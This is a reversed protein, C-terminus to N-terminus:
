SKDESERPPSESGPAGGLASRKARYADRSVAKMAPAAPGKGATKVRTVEQAMEEITLKTLLASLPIDIGALKRLRTITQTLLLSHGGLEFFNDQVGVQEVGLMTRWLGAVREEEDDRPAIFTTSVQPRAAPPADADSAAEAAVPQNARASAVIWEELDLATAVVQPGLGAAVVRELAELGEAPLMGERFAAERLATALGEAGAEHPADAVGVAAGALAGRDQVRKMVFGTIEVLVQGGEDVLVVDFTPLDKASGERLRVHSSLRRPLARHLRLRGYSFPVLFDREADFGAILTQVAGTAMDLLAPHLLHTSLDGAFAAPLELDVLAEGAGAGVNIAKINGWRPGFSMFRQPLFGGPGVPRPSGCRARVAALDLNQVDPPAAAAVRRAHGAVHRVAAGAGDSSVSEIGVEGAASVSVRLRRRQGRALAFPAMFVVDDLELAGPGPLARAAAERLIELFGTGPILADGDKVVHESLLWWDDVGLSREWSPGSGDPRREGLWDGGPAPAPGRTQGRAAMTAAMGVDRWAGWDIALSAEPTRGARELALADLVANAATYDIQGQLGLVSSVSSFLLYLELPPQGAAEAERALADLVLAGKVKPAIVRAASEVTKLLVLEDELVGAAHIVGTLPGFRARAAEFVDRMKALDTVDAQLVLAEAGLEALAREREPRATRGVLVLKARV